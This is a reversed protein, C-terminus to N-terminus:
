GPELEEEAPVSAQWGGASPEADAEATAQREAYDRAGADVEAREAEIRGAAETARAQLQDLRANRGEAPREQGAEPTRAAPLEHPHAAAPEPTETEHPQAAAAARADAEAAASESRAVREARGRERAEDQRQREAAWAEDPVNAALRDAQQAEARAAEAADARQQDAASRAQEQRDRVQAWTEDPVGDLGDAAEPEPGPRAQARAQQQSRAAEWQEDPIGQGFRELDAAEVRAAEAAEAQRAARAQEQRDRAAAWEEEPIGQGLRDPEAAEAQAQAPQATSTQRRWAEDAEDADGAEASTDVSPAPENPTGAPAEVQTPVETEAAAPAAEPPLYGDARLKAIAEEATMAGKPEASPPPPWPRGADLAEQREAAIAVDAKALDAEFERWWAVEDAPEPADPRPRGGGGGGGPGPGGPGGPGGGGLDAPGRRALEARAKSAEERKAATQASWAEYAGAQPELTAEQAEMLRALQEAQAAEQDQARVTADAHQGWADAKAQGTRRLEDSVDPPAAAMIRDGEAVKAELQARSLGRLYQAEDRIELATMTARRATELEPNGEHPDPAIARDPDTIGAAERYSAAIGARREYEARLAPSANTELHGLHRTLWPEPKEAQRVGLERVREDLGEALDRALQPAGEPTRQAWTADHQPDLGLGELRSHLVSAVSRAGDLNDATVRDILEGLDHGALQAERLRAHFAQRAHDAQYRRAQDAPLRAAVQRDIQPYLSERVATSWLHMVHGTGGAWEQGARMQETASLEGAEREMIGKVVSEATAQEYPKKGKPATNGTEVWATNEERGRTMGVYFSRRSLTQTVVLHSPGVTRGQSVHVNGAYNLEGHEALYAAPIRFPRSWPEAPDATRRRVWAHGSGQDASMVLLTDRNTLRRGGADIHENHRARVLDGVGAMNGDALDFVGEGVRGAQALQAQVRRSLDAAEASSGALLLVDRGRLLDALYAQAAKDFVAEHDAGRIRGRRQYAALAAIDGKRLRQSAEAQWPQAFRRIEELRAGPLDTALLSFIGGAEVSGLQETDGVPHMRAGAHRAAQQVLAVDVTSAQTAEDLVLVDGENVRVPHRLKDSGEVKGLFQAINYSEALGENALVEAANTSTTLGIVRGGTFQTWLRAFVAMTHSKGSGAAANLPVTMTDTTLLTVVAERQEATLDTRAVARRAAEEPVLRPMRAKAVAVIHEELDLHELTSWKAEGPPRYVSVGDSERMGLPTVDAIDPAAGVQVVGTGSRGSVVLEAIDTVDQGSVGAGLARHVEFRLHSLDWAAHHRQAEAVAVAAARRRDEDTLVRGPVPPLQVAHPAGGPAPQPAAAGRARARERAFEEAAECVASLAQMEEATTAKEWEALREADTLEADHVQGNVTRRAEAKARRTRQGAQQHLLWLTRKSPPKGHIREWEAALRALEGVVAVGRSSFQRMVKPDVGGVECGNGDPRPVMVFGLDRLRAEVFRDPVPAMGLRNQYLARGHLTRWKGDAKDARQVRNWVAVHVHLQPDGDRSVHHLFLSSALGDGDRWEGTSASHHGTRTYTAHEELWRVADRAGDMMAQEIADAMADLAQARDPRHEARAQMAAVRYSAHLVSVSKVASVTLDFYPVARPASKARQQARFEAIETASACFHQKRWARVAAEEEEADGKGQHRPALVEGGPGINEMFLAELVQPDVQGALGLRAAARGAWQGPPEGGKTYYAMAGACGVGDANTFYRVDHGKRISVLTTM